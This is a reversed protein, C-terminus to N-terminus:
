AMSSTFTFRFQGLSEKPEVDRVKCFISSKICNFTNSPCPAGLTSVLLIFREPLLSILASSELNAIFIAWESYFLHSKYRVNWWVAFRTFNWIALIKYGVGSEICSKAVNM